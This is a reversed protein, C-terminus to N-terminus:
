ALKRNDYIFLGAKYKVTRAPKYDQKSTLWKTPPQEGNMVKIYCLKKLIEM